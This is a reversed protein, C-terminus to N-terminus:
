LKVSGGARWYRGGGGEREMFGDDVLYRRLTAYDPHWRRLIEKVQAEPYRVGVEFDQAILDLVHQRKAHSSPISVLRGDKVFVRLVAARQGSERETQDDDRAEETRAASRLVEEKLRYGHGDREVLGGEILRALARVVASVPLGTEEAVDEHTDAGLLLAAAVRLRDGDALLGVIREATPADDV